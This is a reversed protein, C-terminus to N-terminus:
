SFTGLISIIFVYPRQVALIRGNQTARKLLGHLCTKLFKQMHIENTEQLCSMCIPSSLCVRTFFYLLFLIPKHQTSSGQHCMRSFSM